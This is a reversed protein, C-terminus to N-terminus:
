LGEQTANLDEGSDRHQKLIILKSSFFPYKLLKERWEETIEIKEALQDDNKREERQSQAHRIIQDLFDPQV